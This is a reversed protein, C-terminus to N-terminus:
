EFSSLWLHYDGIGKCGYACIRKPRYTESVQITRMGAITENQFAATFCTFDESFEGPGAPIQTFTWFTRFESDKPGFKTSRGRRRTILLRAILEKLSLWHITSPPADPPVFGLAVKQETRDRSLIGALM